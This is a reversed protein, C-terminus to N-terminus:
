TIKRSLVFSLITQFFIVVNTPFFLQKSVVVTQFFYCCKFRTIKKWVIKLKTSDLFIIFIYLSIAHFCPFTVTLFKRFYSFNFYLCFLSFNYMSKRLLQLCSPTYGFNRIKLSRFTEFLSAKDLGLLSRWLVM